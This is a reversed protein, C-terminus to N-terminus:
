PKQGKGSKAIRALRRRARVKLRPDTKHSMVWELDERSWRDMEKSTPGFLLVRKLPLVRGTSPDKGHGIPWSM